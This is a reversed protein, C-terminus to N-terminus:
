RKLQMRLWAALRIAGGAQPGYYRTYFRALSRYYRQLRARDAYSPKNFHRVAVNPVFYIQWGRMRLRHCLDNDEFYMFIGEDLLGVENLAQTRLVLCTGAVWDARRAAGGEWDHLDRGWWRAIARRLLYWPSPDGGHSYPQATGDPWVLRPGCAGVRPHRDMFTVLTALTDRGPLADNNLLAIYRAPLSWLGINNGAAFGLNENTRLTLLHPPSGDVRDSLTIREVGDLSGDSSGNDVVVVGLRINISAFTARVAEAVLTGGDYNLVVVCLDPPEAGAIGCM